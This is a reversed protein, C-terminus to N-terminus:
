HIQHEIKHESQICLIKCAQFVHEFAEQFEVRQTEDQAILLERGCARLMTLLKKDWSFSLQKQSM